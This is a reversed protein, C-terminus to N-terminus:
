APALGFMGRGSKVFRRDKGGNVARCLASALSAVPTRGSPSWHSDAIAKACLDVVRMPEGVQKLVLAAADLGSLRRIKDTSQGDVAKKAKARKPKPSTPKKANKPM